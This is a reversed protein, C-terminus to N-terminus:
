KNEKGLETPFYEKHDVAHYLTMLVLRLVEQNDLRACIEDILEERKMSSFGNIKVKSYWAMRAVHEVRYKPLAELFTRLNVTEPM